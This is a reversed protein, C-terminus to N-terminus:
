NKWQLGDHACGIGRMRRIANVHARVTPVGEVAGIGKPVVLLLLHVLLPLFVFKEGMHVATEAIEVKSAAISSSCVPVLNAYM